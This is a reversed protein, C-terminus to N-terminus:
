GSWQLRRIDLLSLSHNCQLAGLHSYIHPEESLVRLLLSYFECLLTSVSKWTKPSKFQDSDISKDSFAVVVESVNMDLDSYSGLFVLM